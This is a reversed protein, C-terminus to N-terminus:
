AELKDGANFDTRERILAFNMYKAVTDLRSVLSCRAAQQFQFVSAIPAGQCHHGLQMGKADGHFIRTDLRQSTIGHNPPWVDGPGQEFAAPDAGALLCKIDVEGFAHRREHRM